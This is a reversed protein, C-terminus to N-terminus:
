KPFKLDGAPPARGQKRLVLLLVRRALCPFFTLQQNLQQNARIEFSNV